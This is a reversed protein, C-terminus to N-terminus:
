KIDIPHGEPDGVSELLYISDDLDFGGSGDYDQEYYVTFYDPNLMATLLFEADEENVKGNCDTDGPISVRYELEGMRFISGTTLVASKSFEKDKYTRAEGGIAAMLTGPFSGETIGFLYRTGTEEDLYYEIREAFETLEEPVTYEEPIEFTITEVKYVDDGASLTPPYNRVYLNLEKGNGSMGYVCNVEDGDYVFLTEFEGTVTNYLVVHKATTFIVNTGLAMIGGFYGNWHSGSETYFYDTISTITEYVYFDTTRRFAIKNNKIEALYYWYGNCFVFSTDTDYWCANATKYVDETANDDASLTSKWDYEDGIHIRAFDTPLGDNTEARLFFEHSVNGAVEDCGWTFDICYWNGNLKVRNWIHNLSYSIVTDNEIGLRDLVGAAFLSYAQCVGKKENIFNYVDEILCDYDYVFNNCIYEFIHLLKAEVPWDGHIGKLCDDIASEYLSLVDPIMEQEFVPKFTIATVVSKYHTYSFARSVLFTLPEYNYLAGMYSLFTDRDLGYSEINIKSEGSLFGDTVHSLFSGAEDNGGIATDMALAPTSGGFPVIFLSAVIVALLVTIFRKM